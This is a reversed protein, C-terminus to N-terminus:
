ASTGRPSCGACVNGTRSKFWGTQLGGCAAEGQGAKMGVPTCFGGACVEGAPPRIPPKPGCGVVSRQCNRACGRRSRESWGPFKAPTTNSPTEIAYMSRFIMRNPRHSKYQRSRWHTLSDPRTFFTPIQNRLDAIVAACNRILRKIEEVVDGSFETRDVRQCTANVARAAHSMVVLYTDDYTRAIPMAAFIMRNAPKGVTGPRRRKPKSDAMLAYREDTLAESGVVGSIRRKLQPIVMLASDAGTVKRYHLAQEAARAVNGGDPSWNKAEIVVREGKPGTVLFDPILGGIAPQVEFDFGGRKLINAIQDEFQKRRIKAAM